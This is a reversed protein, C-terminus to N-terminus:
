PIHTCMWDSTHLSCLLVLLPLWPCRALAALAGQWRSQMCSVVCHVQKSAIRGPIGEAAKCGMCGKEVDGASNGAFCFHDATGDGRGRVKEDITGGYGDGVV